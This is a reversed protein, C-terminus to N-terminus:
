PRPLRRSASQRDEPLAFTEQVDLEAPSFDRVEGTGDLAVGVHLPRYTSTRVVTGTRGIMSADIPLTGRRVRVRAGPPILPIRVAM